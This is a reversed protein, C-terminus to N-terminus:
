VSWGVIRCPNHLHVGACIELLRLVNKSAACRECLSEPVQRSHGVCLNQVIKESLHGTRSIQRQVPFM